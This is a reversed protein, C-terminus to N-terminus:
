RNDTLAVFGAPDEAIRALTERNAAEGRVNDPTWGRELAARYTPLLAATPVRLLTRAAPTPSGSM